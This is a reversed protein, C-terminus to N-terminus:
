NTRDHNQNRLKRLRGIASEDYATQQETQWVPFKGVKLAEGIEILRKAHAVLNIGYEILHDGFLPWTAKGCPKGRFMSDAQQTLQILIAKLQQDVKLHSARLATRINGISPRQGWAKEPEQKKDPDPRM